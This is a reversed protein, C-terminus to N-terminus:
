GCAEKGNSKKGEITTMTETIHVTRGKPIVEIGILTGHVDWHLLTDHKEMTDTIIGDEGPPLKHLGVWVSGVGSDIVVDISDESM